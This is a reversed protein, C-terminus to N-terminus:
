QKPRDDYALVFPKDQDASHEMKDRQGLLQKGLWILMTTNGEMAKQLQKRRLSILGKAGFKKIYEPFSLSHAEKLRAEITDESCKFWGAVEALTCQLEALKECEIWDIEIRPRGGKGKTPKAM